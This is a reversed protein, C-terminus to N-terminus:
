EYRMTTSAVLDLAAEADGGFLNRLNPLLLFEYRYSVTVTLQNPYGTGAPHSVTVDAGESDPDFTVLFEQSYSEAIGELVADSPGGSVIGARAAERSANTIIQKNFMVLGFEIGGFVLLLLLPLVLAFEVAAAGRENKVRTPKKMIDEL